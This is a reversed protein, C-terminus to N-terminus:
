DGDGGLEYSVCYDTEPALGKLVDMPLVSCDALDSRRFYKSSAMYITTFYDSAIIKEIEKRSVFESMSDRIEVREESFRFCRSVKGSIKKRRHIFIGTIVHKRVWDNISKDRGFTFNFIRFLLFRLETMIRKHAVLFLPVGFNLTLPNEIPAEQGECKMQQSLSIAQNLFQTSFWGKNAQVMYGCHSAELKKGAKNYIKLVGGKSIGLVYYKKRDSRVYLGAEPWYREFEREYPMEVPEAEPTKGCTLLAQTYSSLMPVFNRIDHSILDPSNGEKVAYAGAQAIAAAEPVTKALLEFGSPFYLACNRSGYEGGVSGDPHFFYHLFRVSPRIVQEFLQKDGSMEYYNSLYYTDLTQYGPDAGGYEYLWGESKSQRQRVTEIFYEARKLYREDKTLLYTSYLACAAGGRHNSIFGHLEDIKCLYDAGRKMAGHFADHLDSSMADAECLAAFARSIEYLTFAVGVFSREHPYHHDFSGDEYQANIWFQIGAKIWTLIKASKHWVNGEFETLYILTLPYVARQLDINSFDKTAWAWYERDFSGYTYSLSDRDLETLVRPIASVVLKGYLEKRAQTNMQKLLISKSASIAEAM